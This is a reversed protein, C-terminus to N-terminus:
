QTDERTRLCPCYIVAPKDDISYLMALNVSCYAMAKGQESVMYRRGTENARRQAYAHPSITM